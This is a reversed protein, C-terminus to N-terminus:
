ANTARPSKEGKGIKKEEKKDDNADRTARKEM